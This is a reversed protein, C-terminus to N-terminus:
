KQMGFNIPNSSRNQSELDSVLFYITDCNNGGGGGGFFLFLFLSFIKLGFFTLSDKGFGFFLYIFFKLALSYASGGGGRDFKKLVSGPIPDRSSM